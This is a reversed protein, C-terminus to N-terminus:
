KKMKKLKKLRDKEVKVPDPELMGKVLLQEFDSVPVPRSFLYGQILDCNRNRLFRYQGYEEVGEAIIRMKLGKAMEMVSGVIINDKEIQGDRSQIFVQDIKLTDAQYERLYNLSAFGTGFDDIAVRVGLEKLEALTDIVGKENKLLSGETIEVGFFATPVDYAKLQSKVYETFGKKMLRIPSINVSVPILQLGKDKWERIQACAKKIVWDSIDNILHNEEAIPIFEGPSILGWERHNWRILAEAGMIEGTQTEVLPQYYLEFDEKELAELMENELRLKRQFATDKSYSYLRFTNRGSKKSYSLASHAKEMLTKSSNGDEPYFSVGISSTMNIEYEDITFPQKIDHILNEIVSVLDEKSAYDEFLIIFDNSKLRAVFSNEPLILLLRNAITKLVEDGVHYGLSGNIQSFRDLNLFAFAFPKEERFLHGLKEDLSRQNPLTTLLDHNATYKLQEQIKVEGTIDTQMGFIHTLKGNEDYYPATNCTLWKETGDPHTIRYRMNVSEGNALVKIATRRVYDKDDQHVYKQIVYRIDLNDKDFSEFPYNYLDTLGKSVYVLKGTKFESVWVGIHLHNFILKLSKNENTIDIQQHKHFTIDKIIFGIGEVETGQSQMPVMMVDFFQKKRKIVVECQTTQGLQAREFAAELEQYSKKLLSQKFDEIRMVNGFPTMEKDNRSRLDGNSSFIMILNPANNGLSAYHNLLKDTLADRSINADTIHNQFLLGLTDLQTSNTKTM